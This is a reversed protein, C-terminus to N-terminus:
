ERAKGTIELFRERGVKKIGLIDFIANDYLIRMAQNVGSDYRIYFILVDFDTIRGGDEKETATAYKIDCFISTLYPSWSEIQQGANDIAISRQEITIIEDLEGIYKIFKLNTM